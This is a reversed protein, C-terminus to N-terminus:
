NLATAPEGTTNELSTAMNENTAMTTADDGAGVESEITTPNESEVVVAVGADEEPSSYKPIEGLYKSKNFMKGITSMARSIEQHGYIINTCAALLFFYLILKRM